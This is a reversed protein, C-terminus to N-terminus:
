VFISGRKYRICPAALINDASVVFPDHGGGINIAVHTPGRLIVKGLVTGSAYRIGDRHRVQAAIISDGLKLRDVAEQPTM